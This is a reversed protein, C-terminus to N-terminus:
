QDFGLSDAYAPFWVQQLEKRLFDLKEQYEPSETFHTTEGPDRNMDHLREEIGVADYLIYKQKDSDVVMWGIESEVGLTQRWDVTKGEMLPKLSRGRPDSKGVVGAYECLTPLLDLGSSVLHLSDVQGAPVHGKWMAMFPVNASEEYFVTKHELRHSGDMDGHDSSFLVLTNEEQGSEKLADLIMQIQGDVRETLRCYAWRHRRWDKETYNERARIKFDRLNLMHKIAEPEDQQPELNPPAPPCLTAFFEDESLSDPYQLAQDLAELEVQGRLLLPNEPDSHDRIAMYCIDHPNILSVVMFYPRIHDKRIVESAKAALEDREDDTFDTFGLATPTLLKPLHEKGGYYLDYGAQKLYAAITTQMVEESFEPIRMSGVNERVINGEHDNFDSAFRGTILSVRAPSCVPNPTYARTFRIGNEAIYDMAPTNLWPNGACSMMNAHQQDTYIYIINPRDPPHHETTSEQKSCSIGALIWLTLIQLKRM